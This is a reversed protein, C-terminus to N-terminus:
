EAQGPLKFLRQQKFLHYTIRALVKLFSFRTASTFMRDDSLRILSNYKITKGHQDAM